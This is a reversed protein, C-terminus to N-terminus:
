LVKITAIGQNIVGVPLANFSVSWREEQSLATDHVLWSPFIVLKGPTSEIKEVHDENNGINTTDIKPRKYLDIQGLSRQALPDYFVTPASTNLYLVGSWYSNAHRHPEQATGVPYYNGWMSTIRFGDCDYNNEEQIENLCHEFFTTMESFEALDHLRPGCNLVGTNPRNLLKQKMIVEIWNTMSVFQFEYAEVPYLHIKKM